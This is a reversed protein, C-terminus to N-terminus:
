DPGLPDYLGGAGSGPCDSQRLLASAPGMTARRWTSQCVSSTRLHCVLREHSPYRKGCAECITGSQLPRCPNIRGHVKFSHSGWARRSAFSKACPLCRHTTYSRNMAHDEEEAPGQLGDQKLMDVLQKHFNTVNSRLQRQLHVHREARKLLGKWRM